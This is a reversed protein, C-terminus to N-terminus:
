WLSASRVAVGIWYCGGTAVLANFSSRVLADRVPDELGAEVGRRILVYHRAMTVSMLGLAAVPWSLVPALAYGSLGSGLLVLFALMQAGDYSRLM